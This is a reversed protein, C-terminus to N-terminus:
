LKPPKDLRRSRLYLLGHRLADRTHPGRVWSFAGMARLVDDSFALMADSPNQLLMPKDHLQSLFVLGGIVYLADPQRSLRLTRQSITYREAVVVDTTPVLGGFVKAAKGFEVTGRMGVIPDSSDDLLVWGSRKGPDVALVRM